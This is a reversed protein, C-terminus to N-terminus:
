AAVPSIGEPTVLVTTPAQPLDTVPEGDLQVDLTAPAGIEVWLAAEEFRRSAGQALVGAFLRRGDASGVRVDLWCDGRVAVLDLEVLPPASTTAAQTETAQTDQALTEENTTAAATSPASTTARLPEASAGGAPDTEASRYDLVAPVTFGALALAAVLSLIALIRELRTSPV